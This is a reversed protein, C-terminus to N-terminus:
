VKDELVIAGRFKKKIINLIRDAELRTKFDGIQTKWEPAKYILVSKYEPFAKDFNKKIEAAEVENGNYLQIKFVISNKNKQNFERKQALLEDIKENESQAFSNSITLFFMFFASILWKKQSISM